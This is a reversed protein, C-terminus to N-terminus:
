APLLQRLDSALAEAGGGHRAFLRIRGETDFVYVGATHDMTYSEPNTKGPVKAYFVKFEKAVAATQEPTGRLALFSPDFGSMYAKLLEPTDREPDVTVFLGQLKDGQPGLAQKVQALEALSTPCVDPCQTFGFFVAVLKGKFDALTRQKGNHDTLSFDRAYGAGTIDISNFKAGQAPAAAGPGRDCAALLTAAAGLLLLSRRKM